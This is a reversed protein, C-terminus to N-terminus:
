GVDRVGEIEGRRIAALIQPAIRRSTYRNLVYCEDHAIVGVRNNSDGADCSNILEAMKEVASVGPSAPQAAAVPAPQSGVSGGTIGVVALPPLGMRDCEAEVEGRAAAIPILGRLHRRNLDLVRCAHAELAALRMPLGALEVIQAALRDREAILARTTVPLWAAIEARLAVVQAALDPTIEVYPPLPGNSQRNSDLYLRVPVSDTM